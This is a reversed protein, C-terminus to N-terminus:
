RVANEDKFDIQGDKVSDDDDVVDFDILSSIYPIM